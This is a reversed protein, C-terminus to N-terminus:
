SRQVYVWPGMVSLARRARMRQDPLDHYAAVLDTPKPPDGPPRIGARLYEAIDVLEGVTHLVEGRGTRYDIVGGPINFEMASCRSAAGLDRRYEVIRDGRLVKVIQYRHVGKSDPRRQNLEKLSFCPEDMSVFETGLLLRTM